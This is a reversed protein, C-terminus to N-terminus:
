RDSKRDILTDDDDMYGGMSDAEDGTYEDALAENKLKPEPIADIVEISLITESNATHYVQVVASDFASLARATDYKVRFRKDKIQIQSQAGLPSATLNGRTQIIKTKEIDAKMRNQRRYALWMLPGIFVGAGILVAILNDRGATILAVIATVGLLVTVIQWMEDNDAKLEHALMERQHRSIIGRRNAELEEPSFDFIDMLASNSLPTVPTKPKRPAYQLDDANQDRPEDDFPTPDTM